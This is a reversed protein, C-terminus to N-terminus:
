GAPTLEDHNNDSTSKDPTNIGFYYQEVLRRWQQRQEWKPFDGEKQFAKLGNIAREVDEDRMYQGTLNLKLNLFIGGPISLLYPLQHEFNFLEFIFDVAGKIFCGILFGLATTVPNKLFLVDLGKSLAASWQAAFDKDKM